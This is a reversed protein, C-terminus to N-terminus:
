PSKGRATMPVHFNRFPAAFEAAHDEMLTSTSAGVLRGGDPTTRVSQTWDPQATAATLFLLAALAFLRAIM